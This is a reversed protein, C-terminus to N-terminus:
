VVEMLFENRRYLIYVEKAGMRIATRASDFAVNGGGIVVVVGLNELDEGTNYKKLFDDSKFIDETQEDTLPCNYYNEVM